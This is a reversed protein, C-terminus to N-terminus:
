RGKQTIEDFCICIAAMLSLDVGTQAGGWQSKAFLVRDIHGVMPGEGEEGIALDANMALYGGRVSIVTPAGTAANIFRAKVKPRFSWTRSVEFLENGSADEGKWLPLMAALKLRLHFLVNGMPDMRDRMSMVKGKCICVVNGNVDKIGFDNGTFSRIREKLLLTTPQQAYYNQFIGLPPNVPPIAFSM